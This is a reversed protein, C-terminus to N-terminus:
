ESITRPPFIGKEELFAYLHDTWDWDFERKPIPYGPQCFGLDQVVFARQRLLPLGDLANRWRAWPVVRLTTDLPFVLRFNFEDHCCLVITISTLTPPAAELLRSAWIWMVFTDTNKVARRITHSTANGAPGVREQDVSLELTLVRLSPCADRLQMRCDCADFVRDNEFWQERRVDTPFMLVLCVLVNEKFTSWQVSDVTTESCDLHLEQLNAGMIPLWENLKAM